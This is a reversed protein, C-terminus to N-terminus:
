TGKKTLVKRPFKGAPVIKMRGRFSRLEKPMSPPRTGTDYIGVGQLLRLLKAEQTLMEECPVYQWVTNKLQTECAECYRRSYDSREKKMYRACDKLLLDLRRRITAIDRRDIKNDKM